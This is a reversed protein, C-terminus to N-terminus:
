MAPNTDVKYWSCWTAWVRAALILATARNKLTPTAGVNQHCWPYERDVDERLLDGGNRWAFNPLPPYLHLFAIKFGRLPIKHTPLGGPLAQGAVPRSDQTTTLYRGRRLTSLSDSLWAIPRRFVLQPLRQVQPDPPWAAAGYHDPTLLGAPTPPFMHLRVISIGWSSPLDQRRRPSERGSIGPSWSGAEATCEATSSRFLRTCGLYRWRGLHAFRVGCGHHLLGYCHDISFRDLDLDRPIIALSSLTDPGPCSSRTM